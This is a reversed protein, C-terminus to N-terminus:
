LNTKSTNQNMLGFIDDNGWVSGKGMDRAALRVKRMKNWVKDSLSTVSDAPIVSVLVHVKDDLTPSPNYSPDGTQM